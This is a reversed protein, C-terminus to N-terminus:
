GPTSARREASPEVWEARIASPTLVDLTKDLTVVRLHTLPTGQYAFLRAESFSAVWASDIVKLLPFAGNPYRGANVTPFDHSEDL